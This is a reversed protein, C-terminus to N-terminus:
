AAEYFRKLPFAKLMIESDHSWRRNRTYYGILVEDDRFFVSAYAADRESPPEIHQVHRWTNGDDLSIAATLPSRPTNTKSAVRNWVLLLDGTKPIRKLLSPSEPAILDTPEPKSWHDGQDDSTARYICQNTNRLFCLLQGSKREIISPEHCGRGVATMSDASRRWSRGDDDSLYVFSELKSPGGLYPGGGIVTHAPLLICGSRLRLIHDNNTCYWGPKSIQKPESWTKGEDASRKSFVNRQAMSDWSSFTFLIEGSKLRLLNPHKVNLKWRNEQIVFPEGWTRGNDRSIMASLRCPMEDGAGGRDFPSTRALEKPDDTYYECWVFLLRGDALPFILQQDQRPHAASWKCMQREWKPKLVPITTAPQDAGLSANWLGTALASGAVQRLFERRNKM